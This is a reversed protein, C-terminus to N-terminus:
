DLFIEGKGSVVVDGGVLVKNVDKGDPEFVVDIYLLSPRKMEFGQESVISFRDQVGNVLGHRALYYGLPGNASGTAPDEGVGAGPAFVRSHSHSTPFETETTFILITEANTAKVIDELESTNPRIRRVTEISKAPVVMVTLGNYIIEVPLDEGGIENADVSLASALKKLDSYVSVVKPLPQNMTTRGPRGSVTAVEVNIVGVNTELKVTTLSGDAPKLEESVIVFATGVIPHGAFPLEKGPTFIRLRFDGNSEPPLLFTTESYNMERAIEQMTASDIGQASTFVALQNGCFRTATFVDAIVFRTSIV